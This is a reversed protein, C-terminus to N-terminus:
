ATQILINKEDGNNKNVIRKQFNLFQIEFTQVVVSLINKNFAKFFERM